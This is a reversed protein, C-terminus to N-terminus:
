GMNQMNCFEDGGALGARLMRHAIEIRSHVTREACDLRDAQEAIPLNTLYYLAVTNRLRGSWGIMLRHTQKATSSGAVKLTPTIGPSPPSWSPHLVSMTPYGSGDGCKRWQAWELLRAHMEEDRAM